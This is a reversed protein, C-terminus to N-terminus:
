SDAKQVAELLILLDLKSAKVLSPMELGEDGLAVIIDSVIDSKRRVPAGSKTTPKQAIYVGERSLKAIISRTSKGMEKALKDVTIRSPNNEYETVMYTVQDETYNKAVETMSTRGFLFNNLLNRLKM